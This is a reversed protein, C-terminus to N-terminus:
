GKKWLENKYSKRQFFDTSVLFIAHSFNTYSSNLISVNSQTIRSQFRQSSTPQGNRNNQSVKYMVEPADENISNIRIMAGGFKLQQM